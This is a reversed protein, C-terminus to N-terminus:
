KFVISGVSAKGSLYGYVTIRNNGLIHSQIARKLLCSIFAM